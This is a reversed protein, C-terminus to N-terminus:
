HIGFVWNFTLICFYWEGILLFLISVYAIIHTFRLFMISLSRLWVSFTVHQMIGNVHFTKPPFSSYIAPPRPLGLEQERELRIVLVVGSWAVRLHHGPLSTIRAPHVGPYPPAKGLNLGQRRAVSAGKGELLDGQQYYHLLTCASLLFCALGLFHGTLCFRSGQCVM